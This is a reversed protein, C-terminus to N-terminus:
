RRKYQKREPESMARATIIRGTRYGIYELIITLYRGNETQGLTLYRNLRTKQTFPHGGFLVEEVEKPEVGHRAIHSITDADWAINEIRM